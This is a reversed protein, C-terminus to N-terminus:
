LDRRGHGHNVTHKGGYPQRHRRHMNDRKTGNGGKKVGTVQRETQHSETLTLNLNNASSAVPKIYRQYLPRLSAPIDKRGGKLGESLSFSVEVEDSIMLCYLKEDRTANGVGM